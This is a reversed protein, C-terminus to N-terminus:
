LKQKESILMYYIPTILPLVIMSIFWIWKNQKEKFESKLVDYLVVFWFIIVMNILIIITLIILIVPIFEFYFYGVYSGGYGGIKTLVVDNFARQFEMDKFVYYYRNKPSIEICVREEHKHKIYLFNDIKNDLLLDFM